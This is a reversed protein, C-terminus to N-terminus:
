TADDEPLRLILNTADDTLKRWADNSRNRDRIAAAIRKYEPQYEEDLRRPGAWKKPDEATKACAQREEAIVAVRDACIEFAFYRKVATWSHPPLSVGLQELISVLKDTREEPTM